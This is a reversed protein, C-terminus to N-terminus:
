LMPSWCLYGNTIKGHNKRNECFNATNKAMKQRSKRSDRYISSAIRSLTLYSRRLNEKELLTVITQFLYGPVTTLASDTLVKLFLNSLYQCSWSTLNLQFDLILPVPLLLLIYILM